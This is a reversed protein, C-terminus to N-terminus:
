LQLGKEQLHRLLTKRRSTLQNIARDLGEVNFAGPLFILQLYIDDREPHMSLVPGPTLCNLRLLTQYLAQSSTGRPPSDFLCSYLTLMRHEENWQFYLSVGDALTIGACGNSSIALNPISDRRGISHLVENIDNLSM